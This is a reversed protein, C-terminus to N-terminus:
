NQFTLVVEHSKRLYGAVRFTGAHSFNRAVQMTITGAGSRPGGITNTYAARLAAFGTLAPINTSIPTKRLSSQRASMSRCRPWSSSAAGSEGFEALM